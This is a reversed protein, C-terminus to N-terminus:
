RNSTLTPGKEVLTMMHHRLKNKSLTLFILLHLLIM